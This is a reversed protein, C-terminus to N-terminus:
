AVESFRTGPEKEKAMRLKASVEKASLVMVAFDLSSSLALVQGVTRLKRSFMCLEQFSTVFDCGVGDPAKQLKSSVYILLM